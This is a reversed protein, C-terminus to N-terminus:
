RHKIIIMMWNKTLNFWFHNPFQFSNSSIWVPINIKYLEDIFSSYFDVAMWVSCKMKFSNLLKTKNWFWVFRLWLTFCKQFNFIFRCYFSKLVSCLNENDDNSKKLKPFVYDKIWIIYNQKIKKNIIINFEINGIRDHLAHM